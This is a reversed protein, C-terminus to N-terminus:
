GTGSWRGCMLSGGVVAGDVRVFFPWELRVEVAAALRAGIPGAVIEAFLRQAREDAWGLVPNRWDVAEMARHFEDGFARNGLGAGGPASSAAIVRDTSALGLEVKLSLSAFV